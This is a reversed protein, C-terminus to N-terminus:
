EDERKSRDDELAAVLPKIAEEVAYLRNLIDQITPGIGVMSLAIKQIQRVAAEMGNVRQVLDIRNAVEQLVREAEEADVKIKVTTKARAM